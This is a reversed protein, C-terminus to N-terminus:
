LSKHGQAELIYIYKYYVMSRFIWIVERSELFSPKFINFKHTPCSAWHDRTREARDFSRVGVDTQVWMVTRM